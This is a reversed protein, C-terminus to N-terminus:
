CWSPAGQVESSSMLERINAEIIRYGVNGYLLQRGDNFVYTPSGAVGYAKRAEEDRQLAAFAEGNDILARVQQESPLNDDLLPLLEDLRGIDRGQEFFALRTRAVLGHFMAATARSTDDGEIALLL